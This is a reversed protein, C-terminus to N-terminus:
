AASSLASHGSSTGVAHVLTAFRNRDEISNFHLRLGAWDYPGGFGLQAERTKELARMLLEVTPPPLIQGTGIIIWDATAPTPSESPLQELVPLNHAEVIFTNM